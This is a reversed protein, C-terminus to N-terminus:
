PTHVHGLPRVDPTYHAVARDLLRTLVEQWSDISSCAGPIPDLDVEVALIVRHRRPGAHQGAVRPVRRGPGFPSATV